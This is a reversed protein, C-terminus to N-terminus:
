SEGKIKVLVVRAPRMTKGHLLYGKTVEEAISGPPGEAEVEGIAEAIEPNFPDGPHMPIAEVGYRKMTDYLQNRVLTMGKKSVDDERMASLGLEFGDLIVILDFLLAENSRKAFYEMREAEEKKYNSLDAKARKWGDLYEDRLREAELLDARMGADGPKQINNEEEKKTEEEM